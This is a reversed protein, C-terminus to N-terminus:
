RNRHSNANTRGSCRSLRLFKPQPTLDFTIQKVEKAFTPTVALMLTIATVALAFSCKM